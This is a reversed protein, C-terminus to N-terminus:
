EVPELAIKFKQDQVEIISEEGEPQLYKQVLIRNFSETIKKKSLFQFQNEGMGKVKGLFVDGTIAGFGIDYRDVEKM